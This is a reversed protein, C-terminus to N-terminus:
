LFKASGPPGSNVSSWALVIAALKSTSSPGFLSPSINVLGAFNDSLNTLGYSFTFAACAAM